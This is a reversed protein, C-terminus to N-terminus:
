TAAPGTGRPGGQDVFRPQPPLGWSRVADVVQDRDHGVVVVLAAPRAAGASQLVHWLAPRGCVPHLVKPLASKMRKGKGAALVVVRLPTSAMAHSM